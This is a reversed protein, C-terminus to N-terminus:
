DEPILENEYESALQKAHPHKMFLLVTKNLKVDCPLCVPRFHNGDSCIQWQTEAPENCRICSLRKIGIETYPKKRKIQWPSIKMINSWM